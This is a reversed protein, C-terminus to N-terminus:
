LNIPDTELLLMSCETTWHVLLLVSSGCRKPNFPLGLCDGRSRDWVEFDIKFQDAEFGDSGVEDYHGDGNTGTVVLIGM